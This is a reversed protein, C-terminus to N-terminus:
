KVEGTAGGGAFDGGGPIPPQAPCDIRFSGTVGAGIAGEYHRNCGQLNQLVQSGAGGGPAGIMPVVGGCGALAISLATLIVAFATRM